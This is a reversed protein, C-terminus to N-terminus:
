TFFSYSTGLVASVGLRFSKSELYTGTFIYACSADEHSLSSCLEVRAVINALASIVSQKSLDVSCYLEFSVVLLSLLDANVAFFCLLKHSRCM